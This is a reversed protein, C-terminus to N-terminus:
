TNNIIFSCVDALKRATVLTPTIIFMYIFVVVRLGVWEVM